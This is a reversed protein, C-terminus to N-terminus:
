LVGLVDGLLATVYDATTKEPPGGLRAQELQQQPTLAFQDKHRIDELKPITGLVDGTLGASIGEQGQMFNLGQGREQIGAGRMQSALDGGATLAQLTNADLGQALNGQLGLAQLTQSRANDAEDARLLGASRANDVGMGAIEGQAVNSARAMSGADRARGSRSAALVDAMAGQSAQDLLLQAKSPGEPGQAFANVKGMVDNQAKPGSAFGMVQDLADGQRNADAANPAAVNGSLVDTGLTRAREGQNAASQLTDSYAGGLGMGGRDAGSTDFPSTESGGLGSLADGVAAGATSLLGGSAAAAADPAHAAVPRGSPDGSVGLGTEPDLVSSLPNYDLPNSVGGAFPNPNAADGAHTVGAREGMRNLLTSGSIFTDDNGLDHMYDFGARGADSTADYAGTAGGGGGATDEIAGTGKDRDSNVNINATNTADDVLKRAAAAAGPTYGAIADPAAGTTNTAANGELGDGFFDAGTAGGAAVADAGGDMGGTWTDGVPRTTTARRTAM